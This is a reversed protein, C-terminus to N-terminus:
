FSPVLPREALLKDGADLLIPQANLPRSPEVQTVDIHALHGSLGGVVAHSLGLVGIFHFDRGAAVAHKVATSGGDVPVLLRADTPQSILITSLPLALVLATAVISRSM